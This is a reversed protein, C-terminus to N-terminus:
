DKFLYPSVGCVGPQCVFTCGAVPNQASRVDSATTIVLQDYTDGIFACSTIMDLPLAIRNLIKGERPDVRLVQGGFIMAVWLNGEADITFGDPRGNENKLDVAVSRSGLTGTETQFAYSDITQNRTDTHYLVRGDLSWALGNSIHQNGLLATLAGDADMRFFRGRGNQMDAQGVYFRGDPGVKGDNLVGTDTISTTTIPTLEKQDLRYVGDALALYMAKDSLFISGCNQPLRICDILQGDLSFAYIAQGYSDVIWLNKRKPDWVPGEGHALRASCLIELKLSNNM